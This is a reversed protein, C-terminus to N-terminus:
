VKKSKWKGRKFLYAALFAAITDSIAIATCIGAEKMGLHKALIYALPIEIIWFAIFNILTPTVTDGAGNLSQAMVMELAYFVYAYGLIRLTINGTKIVEPNDTFIRMFTEPIIIFLFAIAGLFVMNSVATIWAAKEAREPRGAGLNQGVLTSAANSMGWSPLLTFIIIRIAITYGALADSGFDAMIRALFVWSITAILHQGIGGMSIKVLNFIISLVPKLHRKLIRIQGAGKKLLYIQYLVAAGRGITTAVAAGTVGMEPFPGWGFILCPDLVINIINAMWLVRMAIAADGAGRFIANIIFLMMIVGNSGLLVATFGSGISIAESSAGMLGLIKEAYIICPIGFIISAFLGTLIGQYATRNAEDRKKEGIRRSVVATVSVGLGMAVAYIITLLSETLGVAAVADSGLKSVFFIDVIAFISEMLMELVMPISLLLIARRLSM